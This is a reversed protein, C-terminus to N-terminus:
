RGSQWVLSIGCRRDMIRLGGRASRGMYLRTRFRHPIHRYRKTDSNVNSPGLPRAFGAGPKSRRDGSAPRRSRPARGRRAARSPAAAARRARGEGGQEAGPAELATIGVQRAALEQEGRLDSSKGTAHRRSSRSVGRLLPRRREMTQTGTPPACRASLARPGRGRPPWTRRKPPRWARSRRCRPSGAAAEGDVDLDSVLPEGVSTDDGAFRPEASM